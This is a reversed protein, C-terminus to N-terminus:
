SFCYKRFETMINDKYAYELFSDYPNGDLRHRIFFLSYLGCESNGFQHRLGTNTKQVVQKGTQKLLAATREMWNVIQSRPPNGSSNFYEVSYPETRCDCLVAFWHIGGGSYKDTNVVCAAINCPRKIIGGYKGLNLSANGDLIDLISYKALSAGERDFDIMNFGWNYFNPNTLCWQSLVGDIDFNSLRRVVDRPGKHKFTSSIANKADHRPLVREIVCKEDNCKTLQKAIELIDSEDSEDSNNINVNNKDVYDLIAQKNPGTSCLSSGDESPNVCISNDIKLADLAKVQEIDDLGGHITNHIFDTLSMIFFLYFISTTFYFILNLSRNKVVMMDATRPGM